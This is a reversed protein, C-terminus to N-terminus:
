LYSCFAISMLYRTIYPSKFPMSVYTQGQGIRCYLTMIMCVEATFIISITVSLTNGDFILNHIPKAKLQCICMQDQGMKFTLTLILYIKEDFINSITVYLLVNSNEDFLFDRISKRNAYKCYWQCMEFFLTLTMCMKDLFIKSFSIAFM